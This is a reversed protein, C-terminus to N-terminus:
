LAIDRIPNFQITFEDAATGGGIQVWQISKIFNDNVAGSTLAFKAGAASAATITATLLVDINNIDTAMVKVNIDAAGIQATNVTELATSPQVGWETVGDVFPSTAATWTGQGAGSVVFTGLTDENDWFIHAAGLFSIGFLTALRAFEACYRTGANETAFYSFGSYSTGSTGRLHSDIRYVAPAYLRRAVNEWNWAINQNDFASVLDNIASQDGGTIIDAAADFNSECITTASNVLATVSEGLHERLVSVQAGLKDTITHLDAQSIM